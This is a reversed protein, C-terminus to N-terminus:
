EPEGPCVRVASWTTLGAAPPVRGVGQQRCTVPLVANRSRESWDPRKAETPVPNPGYSNGHDAFGNPPKPSSTSLIMISGSASNLMVPSAAITDVAPKVKSSMSGTRWTKEWLFLGSL